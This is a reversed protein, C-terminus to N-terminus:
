RSMPSYGENGALEAGADAETLPPGHAPAVRPPQTAEGIHDLIKKVTGAENIFAIIRMGAHCIRGALPFAEDIRALPM